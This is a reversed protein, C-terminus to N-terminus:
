NYLLVIPSQGRPKARLVWVLEVVSGKRNVFQFLEVRSLIYNFIFLM